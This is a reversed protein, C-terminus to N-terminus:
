NLHQKPPSDTDNGAKIAMKKSVRHFEQALKWMLLAQGRDLPSKMVATMATHFRMLKEHTDM